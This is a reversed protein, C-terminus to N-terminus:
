RLDITNLMTFLNNTKGYRTSSGGVESISVGVLVVVVGVKSKVYKSLQM